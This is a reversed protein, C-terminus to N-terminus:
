GTTNKNPNKVANDERATIHIKRYQRKGDEYLNNGNCDIIVIAPFDEVYLKRLAEPGLEPYSVIEQSIISRSLLAAAGGTAAMYACGNKVISDIVESSRNGKGIMFYLGNELLLPTFKDMRGSTTPGAPGIIKGPPAPAPGSYYIAQGEPEFPFKGKTMFEDTMRAHAADRAMYLTGTILVSEGSKLSTVDKRTWPYVLRKENM